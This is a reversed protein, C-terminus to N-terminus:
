SEVVRKGSIHLPTLKLLLTRSLFGKIEKNIYEEDSTFKHSLARAIRETLIVDNVIEIRGFVIVSEFTKAWTHESVTGDSIVTYCVKDKATIADIKHGSMGSHFYICGDQNFYHNLLIAYPFDGDGTVSLVGRLSSTLIEECRERTLAQKHRSIPRFM